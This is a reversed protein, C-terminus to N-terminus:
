SGSNEAATESQLLRELSCTELGAAAMLAAISESLSNPTAEDCNRRVARILLNRPTHELDIFELVQTRYGHEELIAARLGDTLTEALREHLIGHKQVPALFSRDMQSALEHHCCPVSLIVQSQWSVSRALAVDTATDCAHLSVTLHVSESPEWTSMDGAVFRLGQCNLRDAIGNCHEVVDAKLDLGTIEVTRGHVATLLHHLAFTLYSKGCGFDVVRIPGDDPLSAYVDSVFELFRNVQRFKDYRAARVRGDASMVGVEILFPCPIGDPILYQKERNHSVDAMQKTPSRRTVRVEDGKTKAIVDAEATFLHGNRFREGFLQTVSEIAEDPLLNEHTERRTEHRTLQIRRGAKVDVPRATVREILEPGHRGDRWPRSLVIQIFSDDRLSEAFATTFENM